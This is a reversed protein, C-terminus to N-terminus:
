AHGLPKRVNRRHIGDAFRPLCPRPARLVQDPAGLDSGLKAWTLGGDRTRYVGTGGAAWGEHEDLFDLATLHDAGHASPARQWSAGGDFTLFIGDGVACARMRDFGHVASLVSTPGGKTVGTVYRWTKGGDETRGAIGGSVFPSGGVIWGTEADVFHLGNFVADTGIRVEEWGGAGGGPTALPVGPAPRRRCGACLTLAAVTM